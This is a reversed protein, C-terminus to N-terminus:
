KKGVTEKEKAPTPTGAFSMMATIEAAENADSGVGEERGGGGLPTYNGSEEENDVLTSHLADLDEDSWNKLQEEKFKSNAAIEKILKNKRNQYMALGSKMQDRLGDPFMNDIFKLPDKEKALSEKIHDGISKGNISISGDENQKVLSEPTGADDATKNAAPTTEKEEKPALKNLQEQPLESLWERDEETFNTRKNQILSDVTCTCKGNTKMESKSKTNFNTRKSSMMTVYSVDKRVHVPDGSFEVVNGTKVSYNQRYMKKESTKRNVSCYVLYDDYVEEMYYYAMDSDMGNLQNAISSIIENFSAKLTTLHNVIAKVSLGQTAFASTYEAKTITTEKSEKNTKMKKDKSNTRIGCGDDWSCAGVEGPLLALHDPIVNTAEARYEEGNWEGSANREQSFVGVSVDLARKEKIYDLAEASLSGLLSVDVWAEATLKNGSMRPNYVRGVIEKLVGPLNASIFKDDESKPHGITVPMGNWSNVSAALEEETYLLPGRSGSHVGEVMMVVPLVWYTSGNVEEIRIEYDTASEQSYAQLGNQLNKSKTKM